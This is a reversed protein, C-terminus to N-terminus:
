FFLFATLNLKFNLKHKQPDTNKHGLRLPAKEAGLLTLKHVNNKSGDDACVM